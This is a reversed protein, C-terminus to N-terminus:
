ITINRTRINREKIGARIEYESRLVSCEHAYCLSIVSSNDAMHFYQLRSPVKLQSTVGVIKHLFKSKTNAKGEGRFCHQQLLVLGCKNSFLTDEFMTFPPPPSPSLDYFVHYPPKYRYM